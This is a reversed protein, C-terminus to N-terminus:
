NNNAIKLLAKLVNKGNHSYSNLPDSFNGKIITLWPCQHLIKEEDLTISNSEEYTSDNVILHTLLDKKNLRKSTSRNLYKYLDNVLDSVSLFNNTEKKLNAIMVKPAKNKIILDAVGKTELSPLISSYPTGSGYVIIDGNLIKEKIDQNYTPINRLSKYIECNYDSYLVQCELNNLIPRYGEFEKKSYSDSLVFTLNYKNYTIESITNNNYDNINKVEINEGCIEDSADELNDNIIITFHKNKFVKKSCNIFMKIFAYNSLGIILIYDYFQENDLGGYPIKSNVYKFNKGRISTINGDQAIYRADTRFKRLMYENKYNGNILPVLTKGVYSGSFKNKHQINLLDLITHFIDIAGVPVDIIKNPCDPYNIILPILINDDTM